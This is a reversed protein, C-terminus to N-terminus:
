LTEPAFAQFPCLRESATRLIMKRPTHLGRWGDTLIMGHCIWVFFEGARALFQQNGRRKVQEAHGLQFGIDAVQIGLNGAYFLSNNRFLRM